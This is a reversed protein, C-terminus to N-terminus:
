IRYYTKRRGKETKEEAVERIGEPLGDRKRKNMFNRRGEHGERGGGEATTEEGM